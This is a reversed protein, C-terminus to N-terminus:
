SCEQHKKESKKIRRTLSISGECNKHTKWISSKMPGSESRRWIPMREWQIGSKQGYIIHGPHLSNERWDGGVRVVYIRRPPKKKWHLVNHSVQGLIRCTEQGMSMGSMISANRNNSMWIRTLLEPCLLINLHIPFSEERPSYLKVRPEVHHRYIFSGSMSWFDHIAEGADPLSDHAESEGLFDINSEGQILEQDGGPTKIRGDAIPFILEGEHKPFIVEKANIRKQTSKRHTWRKWSRLSQLWYTVRWNVGRVSRIRPVILTLSEKWISPNEVSGECNYPSVWGTFWFSSYTGWIAEWFTKWLADEWWVIFRHCKASLHLM